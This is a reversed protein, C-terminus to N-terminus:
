MWSSLFKYLAGFGLSLARLFLFFPSLLGIVIDQSLAMATFPLSVTLFALMALFCFFPTISPFCLWSIFSFLFLLAFLIQLKLTQPTYSDTVAKGPSKKYVEMRWYARWFKLKMYKALTDPHSLHWVYAKPNFVMKWGKQSMRYSLDADEGNPMPFATDFGGASLFLNKKYGASYTDVMDIYKRKLLLKYREMFEIQAFRAWLANQKTEYAGKVGVIEPDALSGAMEKIWNEDPVCDSDTFLVVDAKALEVGKNRAAAPGANDQYFYRASYQKLLSATEDTSGDDVVIVEFQNTPFNQKELGELCKKLAAGSNYTPVIVSVQISTEDKM